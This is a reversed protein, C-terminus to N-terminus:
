ALAVAIVVSKETNPVTAAGASLTASGAVEPAVVPRQMRMVLEVAFEACTKPVEGSVILPTAVPM